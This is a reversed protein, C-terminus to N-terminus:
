LALFDILWQSLVMLFSSDGALSNPTDKPPLSLTKSNSIPHICFYIFISFGSLQVSSFSSDRAM